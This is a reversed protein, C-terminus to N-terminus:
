WTKTDPQAPTPQEKSSPPLSKKYYRVLVFLVILLLMTMSLEVLLPLHFINTVRFLVFSFIAYIFCWKQIQYACLTHKNFINIFNESSTIIGDLKSIENTLEDPKWIESSTKFIQAGQLKANDINTKKQLFSLKDAEVRLFMNIREIRFLGSSLSILLLLWTSILLYFSCMEENTKIQLSLSLTALIVGLFFYDFKTQAQRYSKFAQIYGYEETM